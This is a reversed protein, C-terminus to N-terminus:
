QCVKDKTLTINQKPRKSKTKRMMKFNNIEDRRVERLLEIIQIDEYNRAIKTNTDNTYVYKAINIIEALVNLRTSLAKSYVDLFSKVLM